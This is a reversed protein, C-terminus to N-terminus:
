SKLAFDESMLWMNFKKKTKGIVPNFNLQSIQKVNNCVVLGVYTVTDKVPIGNLVMVNKVANMKFWTGISNGLVPAYKNKIFIM